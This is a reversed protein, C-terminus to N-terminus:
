ASLPAAPLRPPSRRLATGVVFLPYLLLVAALRRLSDGSTPLGAALATPLDSGPAVPSDPGALGPADAVATPVDDLGPEPSLGPLDLGLDAGLGASSADSTTGGLDLPPAAPAAAPVDPLPPSDFSAAPAAFGTVGAAALNFTGVYTRNPSPAPPPLAVGEVDRSFSILLGGTSAAGKGPELTAAPPLARAEVGAAALQGLVDQAATGVAGGDGQGQVEIGAASITVPVGGATAGSVVTQASGEAPAGPPVRVLAVSRVQDMQLAGAVDVGSLVVESRMVLVGDELVQSSSSRVAAVSIPALAVADAVAVARAGKDDAAASVVGPTTALPGVTQPEGSVTASAEPKTPHSAQALLPYDPPPVSQCLEPSASCALGPVALPGEGPYYSAARATSGGSTAFATTVWALEPHVLDQVVIFGPRPELFGGLASAITTGSADVAGAASAGPAPALLATTAVVLVAAARATRAASM